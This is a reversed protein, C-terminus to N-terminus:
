GWVAGGRAAWWRGELRDVLARLVVRPAADGGVLDYVFSSWQPDDVAGRVQQHLEKVRFALVSLMGRTLAPVEIPRLYTLRRRFMAADEMTLVTRQEAVDDLLEGSERRLDDLADPTVAMVVCAGPLAGGCYFSLSRLATRRSARANGGRYLNEAEDIIVVPGKCGEMSELLSLWLMIRQYADQRYNAGAPKEVLETAGLFSEMVPGPAKTRSLQLRLKRAAPAAITEGAALKGVLETVRALHRPMRTWTVLRDLPSPAGPLPLVAQELMRRLHRQPNGLDNDMRELSLRFVPRQDRLARAALHSLLHSKGTGYGGVLLGFVSSQMAAHEFLRSITADIDEHGVSLAALPETPPLGHSARQLARLGAHADAPTTQPAGPAQWVSEWAVDARLSVFPAHPPPPGVLATQTLPLVRMALPPLLGIGHKNDFLAPGASVVIRTAVLGRGTDNDDILERLVTYADDRRGPPLKPLVEAREFVVLTGRWGLVRVLHSLERLARRATRPSLAALALSAESRVLETGSVWAEIRQAERRPKRVPQVYARALACLDGGAGHRSVGQEFRVVSNVDHRAVFADLLGVLGTAAAPAESGPDEAPPVLARAVARVLLDLADFARGELVRVRATVFGERSARAVAADFFAEAESPREARVFVVECAGTVDLDALAQSQAAVLAAQWAAERAQAAGKV